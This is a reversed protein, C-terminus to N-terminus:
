EIKSTNQKSGELLKITLVNLTAVSNGRMPVSLLFFIRQAKFPRRKGKSKKFCILFIGKKIKRLFKYMFVVSPEPIIYFTM